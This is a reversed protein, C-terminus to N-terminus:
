VVTVAARRGAARAAPTDGEGRGATSIRDAPVGGAVLADRVTRARLESLEQATLPGAAPGTAVFGDVRLRAGPAATVLAAIREVTRASGPTLEPSDPRFVLPDAAVLADIGDQLAARGAADLEGDPGAGRPAPLAVGPDAGGLQATRVGGVGAVVDVARQADAGAVGSVTADRGRLVVEAPDIGAAALAEVARGTLEAEIQPRPWLLALGALATPVVLAAAGLPLWPRPPASTPM